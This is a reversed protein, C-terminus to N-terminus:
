DGDRATPAQDLEVGRWFSREARILRAIEAEDREVRHVQLEQGCILVALDVARLGTVALQHLANIRVHNPLGKEWLAVGRTGVCIYELLQVDPVDVVERTIRALMWPHQPHQQVTNIRRVRRATRLTYHAAVIPDLLQSWYTPEDDRADTPQLLHERGTKEMWLRMQSKFPNLGIAAAADLNGIGHEVVDASQDFVPTQMPPTTQPRVLQLKTRGASPLKTARRSETRTHIM